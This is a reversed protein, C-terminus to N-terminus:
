HEEHTDCVWWTCLMWRGVAKSWHPKLVLPVVYISISMSRATGHTIFLTRQRHGLLGIDEVLAM